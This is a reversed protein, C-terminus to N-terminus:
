QMKSQILVLADNSVFAGSGSKVTIIGKSELARLAERVSSRSVELMKSLQNESPLKDGPKLQGGAILTRIQEVAQEFLRMPRMRKFQPGNQLDSSVSNEKVQYLTLNSM